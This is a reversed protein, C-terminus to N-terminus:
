KRSFSRRRSFRRSPKFRRTRNSSFRLSSPKSYRKYLENTGLLVAPVAINQVTPLINGGAMKTQILNGGNPISSQSNMNGYVREAHTSADGGYLRKNKRIRSRSRM